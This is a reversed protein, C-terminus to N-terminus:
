FLDTFKLADMRFKIDQFFKGIKIKLALHFLNLM